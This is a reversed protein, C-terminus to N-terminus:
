ESLELVTTRRFYHICVDYVGLVMQIETKWLIPRAGASLRTHKELHTLGSHRDWLYNAGPVHEFAKLNYEIYCMTRIDNMM